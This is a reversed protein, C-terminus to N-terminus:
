PQMLPLTPGKKYEDYGDFILLCRSSNVVAKIDYQTINKNELEHEQLILQELSIDSNVHKLPVLFVYDFRNQLIAAPSHDQSQNTDRNNGRAWDLALKVVASSKGSGAGGKSNGIFINM